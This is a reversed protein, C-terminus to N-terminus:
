WSMIAELRNGTNNGAGASYGATFIHDIGSVEIQM